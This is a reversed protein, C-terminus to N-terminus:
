GPAFGSAVLMGLFWLAVTGALGVGVAIVAKLNDTQSLCKAGLSRSTTTIKTVLNDCARLQNGGHIFKISIL